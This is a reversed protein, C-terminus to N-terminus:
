RLAVRRRRLLCFGVGVGVLLLAASPEPVASLMGTSSDFTLVQSGTDLVGDIFTGSYLGVAVISDFAGGSSGMTFLDLSAGNSLLSGFDLTLVGGMLLSGGVTISDFAGTTEGDIRFISSSGANLTLSNMTFNRGSLSGPDLTGGAFVTVDGVTGAGGLTSDSNVTIASNTNAGDLILTGQSVYTPGSFTNSSTVRLTGSGNKVFSGSTGMLQSSITLVGSGMQHIVLETGNGGLTGGSISYDNTGTM